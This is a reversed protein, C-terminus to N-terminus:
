PTRYFAPFRRVRSHLSGHAGTVQRFIAATAVLACQPECKKRSPRADVCPLHCAGSGRNLKEVDVSGTDAGSM